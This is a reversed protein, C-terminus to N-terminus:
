VYVIQYHDRETDFIMEVEVDGYAPKQKGHESLIQQVIKRYRGIKEM